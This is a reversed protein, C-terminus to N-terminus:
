KVEKMFLVKKHAAVELAQFASYATIKLYERKGGSNIVVM